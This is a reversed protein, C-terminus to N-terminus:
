ATNGEVVEKEYRLAFMAPFLEGTKKNRVMKLYGVKLSCNICYRMGRPTESPHQQSFHIDLAALTDCITRCIPCEHTNYCYRDLHKIIKDCKDCRIEGVGLLSIVDKLQESDSLAVVPEDEM